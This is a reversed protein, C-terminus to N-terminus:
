AFVWGPRRYPALSVELDPDVRALLRVESGADPSGAVGFPSDRRAILRSAQLLCGQQVADPVATWGWLATVRVSGPATTPTVTSTGDVVLGTWPRGDAVANRPTLTYDTVAGSYTGDGATDVDVALGTSSMLDDVDLVWRGTAPDVRGPYYRAVPAAVVGFQRRTFRDISRSAAAIAIGLQVDDATDGIRVYAALEGATVYDPSWM